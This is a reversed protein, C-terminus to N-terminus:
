LVVYDTLDLGALVRGRHRVVRPVEMLRMHKNPM